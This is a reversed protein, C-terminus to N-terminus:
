GNTWSHFAIVPLLKHWLNLLEKFNPQCADKCYSSMFRVIGGRIVFSARLDITKYFEEQFILYFDKWMDDLSKKENSDIFMRKNVRWGRLESHQIRTALHFFKWEDFNM